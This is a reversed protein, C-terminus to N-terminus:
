LSVLSTRLRNPCPRSVRLIAVILAFTVDVIAAAALQTLEVYGLKEVQSATLSTGSRAEGVFMPTRFWSIAPDLRLTRRSAGRELVPKQLPANCRGRCSNIYVVRVHGLSLLIAVAM